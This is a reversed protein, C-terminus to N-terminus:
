VNFFVDIREIEGKREFVSASDIHNLFMKESSIKTGEKKTIVIEKKDAIHYVVPVQCYTFALSKEPISISASEGELNFYHFTAATELFENKILLTPQFIIKGNEVFVGLEGFRALIDEKVQGTMGPQKAGTHKPTHSYPDTPFAGYELPTKNFGIGNRIDYYCAALQNTLEHSANKELANLYTEEVTLLLKSVMHWYISGLGEYGFFTGSRGTFSQHDFMKEFIDLIDNKEKEINVAYGKKGLNILINKVDVANRISGNFHYKGFIDKEILEKNGDAILQNFLESKKAFEDPINNKKLFRPLNRDPYLTYSNQDERFMASQRLAKLVNLSEEASLCGSSLVAVQGELMEYLHRINLEGKNNVSMLNYAHYLGDPRRNAQISHDIYELSLDFFKLLDNKSIETKNESFGNEYIHLRYTSGANGLHDLIKKRNKDSISDALLGRHEIFTSVISNFLTAVEASLQFFENKSNSFLNRCFSQFRRMYYLTVMSVGNGVLANNADNWEPRQTNLWIGGEPIFNSFKTLVSVLLKETLNVLSVTGDKDLLLKGDGGKQTVRESITKELDDDFDVTDYPNELQETYSKIRYPVNAFSFVPKSLMADLRGPHHRQSVEMLKQLYIIQHDGWYGIYSWPDDPEVVEWDIGDRTIRYPNYGDPTSANVFKAIMSEIFGPYSYALAEWNQFIDRWNGAYYLNDSGDEHKVDITFKNWPRSPDGHRRSFILPLYENAIRLLHPNGNKAAEALLFQYNFNPPLKEFFAEEKAFINKNLHNAFITFDRRQVQYNNVFVGGRMINFLVNSYHRAVINTDGTLQLGDANGVLKMLKITGAEIDSELKEQLNIKERLLSLLAAVDSAGQKVEAVMYWVAEEASKLNIKKHLLYAGREARIDIEENPTIGKKFQNIQRNSLLRKTGELGCSWVTNCTLAESPEARDVIISSLMYLGLGTEADLENKKYADVLTSVNAQTFQPVGYPIINQIGDLLEVAVTQDSFNNIWAKRVIGYKDSNFWGYKFRIGLSKNIEEFILKNGVINKYINRQISYIGAYRDSFPEWLYEKNEIGARIITKSGTTESSDHIKDDTYYPFLATEPNRRGATLGGNSSIFLWHDASSVVSMFFPPMQDYHSIKYFDEGEIKVYDGKVKGTNFQCDTTGVQITKPPINTITETM